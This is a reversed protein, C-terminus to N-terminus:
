KPMEQLEVPLNYASKLELARAVAEARKRGGGAEVVLFTGRYDVVELRVPAKGPPPTALRTRLTAAAQDAKARDADKHLVVWYQPEAVAVGAQDDVAARESAHATVVFPALLSSGTKPPEPTDARIPIGTAASIERAAERKADAIAQGGSSGSIAGALLAPVGLAAMFTEFPKKPEGWERLMVVAGVIASALLTWGIYTPTLGISDPRKLYAALPPFLIAVLSAGTGILFKIWAETVQIGKEATPTTPTPTTTPM